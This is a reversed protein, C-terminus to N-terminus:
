GLPSDGEDCGPGRVGAGRFYDLVQSLLDHWAQCIEDKRHSMPDEPAVLQDLRDKLLGIFSAAFQDLEVKTVCKDRHADMVYRLSTPENGAHFNLVAAMGRRLKEYQQARDKFKAQSDVGRAKMSTFFRDYFEEFFAADPEIWKMYSAKALARPEEEVSRLQAVIEHMSAWRSAPDPALMRAIIRDLQPNITKWDDGASGASPGALLDRALQGLMFQDIKHKEVGGPPETSGALEPPLYRGSDSDFVMAFKQWGLVDRACNSVSLASFRIRKLRDDYFLHGPIMPGFGFECHRGCDDAEARHLERLAEAARRLLTVVRDTTFHGGSQAEMAKHLRLGEFFEMILVLHEGHAGDIRFSDYVRVFGPDRLQRRQAAANVLKDFSSSIRARPVIKIAVDRQSGDRGRCVFAFDGDNSIMSEITLRRKFAEEQLLNRVHTLSPNQSARLRDVAGCIEDVIGLMLKERETEDTLDSLACAVNLVRPCQFAELESQKWACHRLQVWFINGLRKDRYKSCLYGLERRSWEGQLYNTSALILAIDARELEEPLAEQWNKGGGLDMDCWVRAKDYLAARLQAQFQERWASDKRSYSIFISPRAPSDAAPGARPM